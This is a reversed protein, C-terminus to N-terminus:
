VMPTFSVLLPYNLGEPLVSVLTHKMVPTLDYCPLRLLVQPQIVEKRPLIWSLTALDARGRPGRHRRRGRCGSMSTKTQKKKRVFKCYFLRSLAPKKIAGDGNARGDALIYVAGRKNAPAPRNEALIGNVHNINRKDSQASYSLQMGGIQRRVLPKAQRRNIVGVGPQRLCRRCFVASDRRLRRRGNKVGGGNVGNNNGRGRRRM